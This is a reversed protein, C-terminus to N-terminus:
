GVEVKINLSCKKYVRTYFKTENKYGNFLDDANLLIISIAPYLDVM